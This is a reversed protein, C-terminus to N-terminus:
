RLNSNEWSGRNMSVRWGSRSRFIVAYSVMRVLMNARIMSQRGLPACGKPMVAGPAVTRAASEGGALVTRM